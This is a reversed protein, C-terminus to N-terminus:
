IEECECKSKKCKNKIYVVDDMNDLAFCESKLESEYWHMIPTTFFEDKIVQSNYKNKFYKLISEILSCDSCNKIRIIFM